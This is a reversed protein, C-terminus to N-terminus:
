PRSDVFAVLKDIDLQLEHIVNKLKQPKAVIKNLGEIKRELDAIKTFIQSDSMSAADEGQIFTKTEINKTMPEEKRLQPQPSNIFGEQQATETPLVIRYYTTTSTDFEVLGLQRLKVVVGDSPRSLTQAMQKLTAGAMYLSRLQEYEHDTWTKGHRARIEYDNRAFGTDFKHRM